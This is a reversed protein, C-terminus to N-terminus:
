RTVDLNRQSVTTQISLKSNQRGALNLVITVRPQVDDNQNEGTLKFILQSIALNASTLNQTTKVGTQLNTRSEQLIGGQLSFEYCADQNQSYDFKIFKIKSTDSNPNEYNYGFNTLCHVPYAFTEKKAMRLARSTYELLYSTQGLLEQAALNNRQAKLSSMFLGAVASLIVSFITVGVVMEVLTFGAINKNNKLKSLAM